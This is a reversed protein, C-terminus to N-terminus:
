KFASAFQSLDITKIIDAASKNININNGIEEKSLLELVLFLPLLNSGKNKEFDEHFNM